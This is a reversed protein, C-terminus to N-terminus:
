MKTGTRLLFPRIYLHSLVRIVVLCETATSWSQAAKGRLFLCVGRCSDTSKNFIWIMDRNVYWRVSPRARLSLHLVEDVVQQQQNEETITVTASANATAEGGGGRVSAGGTQGGQPLPLSAVSPISAHQAAGTSDNTSTTM